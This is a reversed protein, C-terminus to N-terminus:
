SRLTPSICICRSRLRDPIGPKTASVSTDIGQPHGICSEVSGTCFIGLCDKRDFLSHHVQRIDTHCLKHVYVSQYLATDQAARVANTYHLHPRTRARVDLYVNLLCGEDEEM